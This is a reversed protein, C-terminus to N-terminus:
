LIIYAYFQDMFIFPKILSDLLSFIKIKIYNELSDFYFSPPTYEQRM